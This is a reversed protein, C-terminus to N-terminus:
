HKGCSESLSSSNGALRRPPGLPRPPAGAEAALTFGSSHLCCHHQTRGSRFSQGENMRFLCVDM